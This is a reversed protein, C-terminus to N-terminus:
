KRLEALQEFLKQEEATLYKPVTLNIKVFLDGRSTENKMGMGKLRLIKSSDTGKDIKVKIKKGDITQITKSGGLVATFIDVDLNYYLNNKEREFLPHKEIQITLYLDGREGGTTSEGGQNKVRLKKGEEIGPNIKIKIKRGDVNFEKDTGHFAEELSIKLSAEYDPGKRKMNFGSSQNRIGGGFFSQFFESFGCSRGFLDDFEGSFHYGGFQQSNQFDRFWDAGGTGAHQNQKWNSGLM